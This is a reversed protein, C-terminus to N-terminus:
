QPLWVSVAIYTHMSFNSKAQSFARCLAFFTSDSQRSGQVSVVRLLLLAIVMVVSLSALFAAKMITKTQLRTPNKLAARKRASFHKRALLERLKEMMSFLKTMEDSARHMLINAGGKWLLCM